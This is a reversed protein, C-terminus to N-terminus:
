HQSGAETSDVFRLMMEVASEGFLVLLDNEDKGGSRKINRLELANLMKEPERRWKRCTFMIHAVSQRSNTCWPDTYIVADRHYSGSLQEVAAACAEDPKASREVV